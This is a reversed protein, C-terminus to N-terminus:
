YPLETPLTEVAIARREIGAKEFLEDALAIDLLKSNWGDDEADYQYALVLALDKPSASVVGIVQVSATAEHVVGYICENQDTAIPESGLETVRSSIDTAKFRDQFTMNALAGYRKEALATTEMVLNIQWGSDTM